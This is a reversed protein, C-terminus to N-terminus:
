PKKVPVRTGTPDDVGGQPPGVTVATLASWASKGGTSTVACLHYYLTAAQLSYPLNYNTTNADTEAVLVYASEREPSPSYQYIQYGSVNASASPTWQLVGNATEANWEASIQTPAAPPAQDLSDVGMPTSKKSCGSLMATLTLAVLMPVVYRSSKV